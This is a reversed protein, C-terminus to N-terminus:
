EKVIRETRVGASTEVTLLYTGQPLRTLDLRYTAEGHGDEDMLLTGALSHLLVRKIGGEAQINVHTTAPNPYITLGEVSASSFGSGMDDEVVQITKSVVPAPKYNQNGYQNATITAQGESLCILKVAGDQREILIVQEDSSTFAVEEGSTATAYLEAEEGVPLGDSFDQSWVITQSAKEITYTYSPTFSCLMSFEPTVSGGKYVLVNLEPLEYTGADVNLFANDAAARYTTKSTEFTFQPYDGTYPASYPQPILRVLGLKDWNAPVKEEHTVFVTAKSDADFADPSLYPWDNGEIIVRELSSCNEFAAGDIQTIKDPITITELSECGRFIYMSLMKVNESLSISKLQWCNMFAQNKLMTVSNPITVSEIGCWEFCSMGIETVSEPISIDTMARCEFFAYSSINAVGYEIVASKIKEKLPYWPALSSPYTYDEMEGTGSIILVGDDTLRWTVGDGCTGSYRPTVEVTCSASLNTGDNTTATIVATGKSHATVVGNEDVSAVTEWDSTWTVTRDGADEPLM